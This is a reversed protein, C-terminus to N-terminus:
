GISLTFSQQHARALYANSDVAGLGKREIYPELGHDKLNLLRELFGKEMWTIKGLKYTEVFIVCYIQQWAGTPLGIM